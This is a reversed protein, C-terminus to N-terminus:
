LLLAVVTIVVAFAVGGILMIAVFAGVANSGISTAVGAISRLLLESSEVIALAINTGAFAIITFSLVMVGVARVRRQLYALVVITPALSFLAWATFLSFFSLDSGVYVALVSILMLGFFYAGFSSIKLRRTSPLILNIAIM